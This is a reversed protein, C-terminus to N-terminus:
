PVRAFWVLFNNLSDNNFDETVDYTDNDLDLWYVFENTDKHWEVCLCDRAPEADGYKSEHEDFIPSYFNVLNPPLKVILFLTDSDDNIVTIDDAEINEFEFFVDENKM